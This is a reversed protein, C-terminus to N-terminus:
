LWDSHSHCIILKAKLNKTAIEETSSNTMQDQLVILIIKGIEELDNQLDVTKSSTVKEKYEELNQTVNM